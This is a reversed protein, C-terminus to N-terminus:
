PQSEQQSLEEAKIDDSTVVHEKVNKVIWFDPKCHKEAWQDIFDQLDKRADATVNPYDDAFEGAEDLARDGILEIVGDAAGSAFNSAEFPESEGFYVTCGEQIDYDWILEGLSEACFTEGNQSWYIRKGDM